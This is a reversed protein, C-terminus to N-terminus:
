DETDFYHFDYVYIDKVNKGFLPSEVNKSADDQPFFYEETRLQVWKTSKLELLLNRIDRKISKEEPFELIEKICKLNGSTEYTEVINIFPQFNSIQNESM